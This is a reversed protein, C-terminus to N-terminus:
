KGARALFELVATNFAEVMTESCCHGGKPLVLLTAGPIKQALAESFYAPTVLDDKACLVLTPTKIRALDASRDFAVIADIRSAVVELPAFAKVTLAEREALMKENEIIWWDPYLFLTGARTYQEAGITTLVSRRLEFLRKFYVDAKTWTAFLVLSKLREPSRVGLTQGIAGGTSHGLLHAREIKLHDMLAVTDDTMQDVSYRIKSHTSQGAGRHDHVIVRYRKALAPLNPKWYAATGGLGSVLLLPEAGPQSAPGHDEYYIDADGVSIKPM